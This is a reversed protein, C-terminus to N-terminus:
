MARVLATMSPVHSLLSVHSPIPAPMTPIPSIESAPGGIDFFFRQRQFGRDSIPRVVGKCTRQFLLIPRVKQCFTFCRIVTRQGTHIEINLTDFAVDWFLDRVARRSGLGRRLPAKKKPPTHGKLSRFM